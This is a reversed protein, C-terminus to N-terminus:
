APAQAPRLFLWNALRAPAVRGSADTIDRGPIPICSLRAIGHGAAVSGDIRNLYARSDFRHAMGAGFVLAPMRHRDLVPQAFGATDTCGDDFGV